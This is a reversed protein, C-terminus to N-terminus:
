KKALTVSAFGVSTTSIKIKIQKIAAVFSGSPTHFYRMCNRWRLVEAIDTISLQLTVTVEEGTLLEQVGEWYREYFNSAGTLALSENGVQDGNVDTIGYTAFTYEVASDATKQLGRDYLLRPPAEFQDDEQISAGERNHTPVLVSKGSPMGDTIVPSTSYPLVIPDGEVGLDINPLQSTRNYQEDEDEPFHLRIDQEDIPLIEYSPALRSTWDIAPSICPSQKKRFRISKDNIEIFLNFHQTISLLFARADQDPIHNGLRYSLPFANTTLIQNAEPVYDENIRDLAVNNWFVLQQTDESGWWEGTYGAFGLEDKIQNLIYPIRVFPIYTYEWFGTSNASNEGKAGATDWINVWSRFAPNKAYFGAWYLAPFSHSDIPDTNIDNIHDHFHDQIFEGYTRSSVLTLGFLSDSDFPNETAKRSDIRLQTQPPVGRIYGPYDAAILSRLQAVAAAGTIGNVAYTTTGIKITYTGGSDLDYVFEDNFTGLPVVITPMLSRINIKSMEDLLTRQPDQIRLSYSDSNVKDIIIQGPIHLLNGISIRGDYMRRRQQSDIRQAHALIRANRPTDPIRVPYNYFRPIGDPDFVPNNITLNISQDPYLDLAEDKIYIALM